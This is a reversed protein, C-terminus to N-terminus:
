PSTAQTRVPAVPNPAAPELASPEGLSVAQTLSSTTKGSDSARNAALRKQQLYVTIPLTATGAVFSLAPDIAAVGLMVLGTKPDTVPSQVASSSAATAVGDLLELDRAVGGYVRPENEPHSVGGAFNCITGCGNIWVALIATVIIAVRGKM